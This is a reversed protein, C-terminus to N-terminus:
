SQEGSQVHFGGAIAKATAERVQARTLTSPMQATSAMLMGSLPRHARAEAEVSARTLASPAVAVANAYPAEGVAPQAIAAFATGSLALAAAVFSAQIVRM